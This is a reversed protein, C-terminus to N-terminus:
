RNLSLLTGKPLRSAVHSQQVEVGQAACRRINACRFAVPKHTADPPMRSLHVCVQVIESKGLWGEAVGRKAASCDAEDEDTGIAPDAHACEHAFIFKRVPLANEQLMSRNLIILKLGPIYYGSSGSQKLEGEVYDVGPCNGFDGAHAGSTFLATV